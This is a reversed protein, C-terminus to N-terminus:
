AIIVVPLHPVPQRPPRVHPFASLPAEHRHVSPRQRQSSLWMQGNRVSRQGHDEHRRRGLAAVTILYGIVAGLIGISLLISDRNM